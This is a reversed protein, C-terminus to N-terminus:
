NATDERLSTMLTTTAITSTVISVSTLVHFHLQSSLSSIYFLHRAFMNPTTFLSPFVLSHNVQTQNNCIFVSVQQTGLQHRQRGLLLSNYHRAGTFTTAGGWIHRVGCETRGTTNYMNWFVGMTYVMGRTCLHLLRVRTSTSTYSYKKLVWVRVRTRLFTITSTSSYIVLTITSM